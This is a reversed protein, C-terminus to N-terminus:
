SHAPLEFPSCEVSVRFTSPEFGKRDVKYNKIVSYITKVLAQRSSSLFIFLLTNHYQTETSQTFSGSLGCIPRSTALPLMEPRNANLLNNGLKM